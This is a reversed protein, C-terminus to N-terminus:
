TKREGILDVIITRPLKKATRRQRQAKGLADPLSRAELPGIIQNLDPYSVRYLLKKGRFLQLNMARRKEVESKSLRLPPTTPTVTELETPVVQPVDMSSASVFRQTQEEVPTIETIEGTGESIGTDIGTEQSVDLDMKARNVADVYEPSVQIEQISEEILQRQTDTLKNAILTAAFPDIEKYGKKILEDYYEDGWETLVEEMLKKSDFVSEPIQAAGATFDKAKKEYFEAIEEATRLARKATRREYTTMGKSGLKEFQLAEVIDDPTKKPIVDSDFLENLIKRGRKTISLKSIVAGIAYDAPSPTALGGALRWASDSRQTVPPASIFPFGFEVVGGIAMENIVYEARSTLEKLNKPPNGKQSPGPATAEKFGAKKFATSARTQLTNLTTEIIKQSQKARNASTYQLQPRPTTLKIGMSGQYLGQRTEEKTSPTPATPTPPAPKPATKSKTTVGRQVTQKAQAPTVTTSGSLTKEGKEAKLEAATKKSTVMQNPKLAALAAKVNISPKEDASM